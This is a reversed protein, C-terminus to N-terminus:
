RASTTATIAAVRSGDDSDPETTTRSLLSAGVESPPHKVENPLMAEKSASLSTAPAVARFLRIRM